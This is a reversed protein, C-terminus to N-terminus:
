PQDGEREGPLDSESPAGSAREAEGGGPMADPAPPVNVQAPDFITTFNIIPPVLPPIGAKQTASVVMERIFPFMVAPGLRAGVLRINEEEQAADMSASGIEFLSRFAARAELGPIQEISMALEVLLRHGPFRTLNVKFELRSLEHSVEETPEAKRRFTFESLFPGSLLRVANERPPSNAEIPAM